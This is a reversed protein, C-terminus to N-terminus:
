ASSAPCPHQRQQLDLGIPLQNLLRGGLSGFGLEMSEEVPAFEERRGGVKRQEQEQLHSPPLLGVPPASPLPWQVMPLQFERAGARSKCCQLHLTRWSVLITLFPLVERPLNRTHDTRKKQKGRRKELTRVMDASNSKAAVQQQVVAHRPCGAPSARRMGQPPENLGAAREAQNSWSDVELSKEFPASPSAM